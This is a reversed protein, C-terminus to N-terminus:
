IHTNFWLVTNVFCDAEAEVEDISHNNGPYSQLRVPIHRSKMARVYELGQSPPVRKDDLGLMIFLPTKVQNVYSLPSCKWLYNLHKDDALSQFDFDLGTQAFIWDHIDSTSFMSVLNVVPNRIAAAKFTDPYQGILHTGLFGGHSGGYALIRNGDAVGKALVELLASEVDRVDQTGISGTLSLISNQGFGTSGRYNVMLVAYGCRIFSATAINFSTDFSTNPGGHLFVIIPPLEQETRAPLCLISEYDIGDFQTHVREPTPKHHIVQWTLWDFTEPIDDLYSWVGTSVDELNPIRGVLLHFPQNLTSSSVLLYRGRVSLLTLSGKKDGALVQQIKGTETNVVIVASDSRWSTGLALHVSDDFWVHRNVVSTYIGPFEPAPAYDVQDIVVKRQRSPWHIQVLRACQNHAGGVPMDLYVLKSLDPSFRPCRVARGDESLAEFSNKQIDLYYLCSKRQFCFKLGLRYPEHDWACVVVGADDPAWLAQGPSVGEPLNELISVTSTDIDLVCIVPCVRETFQEGWNEVHVFEDGRKVDGNLKGVDEDQDGNGGYEKLFKPDFFGATNVKKKEAVYLIHGESVSWEFSGFQGDNDIIKGHKELALVNITKLKRTTDFIELYQKDENKKDKQTRVVARLKGSPSLKNWSENKVEQPGTKSVGQGTQSSITHWRLLTTKDKRDVDRQSWSSQVILTQGDESPLIEGQTPTPYAVLERYILAIESAQKTSM